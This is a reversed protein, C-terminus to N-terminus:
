DELIFFSRRVKGSKILRALVFSRNLIQECYTGQLKNKHIKIAKTYADIFVEIDMYPKTAFHPPMRYVIEDEPASPSEIALFESLMIDTHADAAWRMGASDVIWQRNEYLTEYEEQEV